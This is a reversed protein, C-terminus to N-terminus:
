PAVELYFAEGDELGGLAAKVVQGLAEANLAEAVAMTLRVTPVAPGGVFVGQAGRAPPPELDPTSVVVRAPEAVSEDVPMTVGEIGSPAEWEGPAVEIAKGNARLEGLLALADEHGVGFEERVQALTVRDGTDAAIELLRALERLDESAPSAM